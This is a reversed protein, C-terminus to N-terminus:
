KGEGEKLLAEVKNIFKITVKLSLFDPEDVPPNRSYLYGYIPEFIKHREEKHAQEILFNVINKEEPQLCKMWGQAVEALKKNLEDM